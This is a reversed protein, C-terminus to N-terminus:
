QQKKYQEIAENDILAYGPRVVDKLSENPGYNLWDMGVCNAILRKSAGPFSKNALKKLNEKLTKSDERSFYVHSPFGQKREPYTAGLKTLVDAPHLKLWNKNLKVPNM